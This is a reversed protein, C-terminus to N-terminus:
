FLLTDDKIIEKVLSHFKEDVYDIVESLEGDERQIEHRPQM